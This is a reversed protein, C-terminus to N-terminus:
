VVFGSILFVVGLFILLGPIFWLNMVSKIKVKEPTDKM